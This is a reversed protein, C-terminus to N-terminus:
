KVVAWIEGWNIKYNEIKLGANSMEDFFEDKNYEIFHTPDLRYDLGLEKKLPVVWDREFIPVRILFKEPNYKEKIQKLFDVRHEIHELVNSLIVIDIKGEPLLKLADVCTYKINQHQFMENAKEINKENINVAYIKINQKNQAISFALAGYGCGIDLIKKNDEINNIFFDHYKIHKHKTHIGKGYKISQEGMIGYIKKELNCLFKLSEEPSLSKAYKTLAFEFLYNFKTIVSLKKSLTKNNMLTNFVAKYKEGCKKFSYIKCNELAKQRYLEHNQICFTIKQALKEPKLDEISNFLNNSVYALLERSFPILEAMAGDDFGVVPLGCSVAELVSNPCPPNLSSFLYVDSQRLINAIGQLDKSGLYEIYDRKLYEDLKENIIPGVVTLKFNMKDKIIDLARVIPELMDPNRFNGTTIFKVSNLDSKYDYDPYFIEERVGNHIITYQNEPKEGLMKFCQQKSYESQFIVFDAYNLYVDKIDKNVKKFSKGHKEPYYIGDLRQIIPLGAKKLKKLVKINYFVPFFIGDMDKIDNSYEYGISDFHNNLNMMFTSPGNIAKYDEFPIFIKKSM